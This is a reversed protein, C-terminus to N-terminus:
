VYVTGSHNCNICHVRKQPPYTLLTIGPMSDSLEHKCHPCELGNGSTKFQERNLVEENHERITKLKKM